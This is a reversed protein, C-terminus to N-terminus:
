FKYKREFEIGFRERFEDFFFGEIKRFGLIIFEKESEESLIFEKGEVVLGNEKIKNIYEKINFINYYRCDEFFLYVVCGVGIYEDCNWYKLNYKCEFGKKVFNFIEYYYFGVELFRDRVWWFMRREEDESLLLSKYEEYREFFFIGEEIKLLYIFM